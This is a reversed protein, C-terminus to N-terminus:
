ILYNPKTGTNPKFTKCKTAYMSGLSLFVLSLSGISGAGTITMFAYCCVIGSMIASIEKLVPYNPNRKNYKMSNSILSAFLLLYIGLGILGSGYFFNTVDGHIMRNRGFYKPGFYQQSNFLESGILKHVITGDRFEDFAYFIEKYRGEDEYNLMVDERAELRQLLTNEFFPFLILIVLSFFILVKLATTKRYNLLYYVIFGFVLGFISARKMGLIVFIFFCIFFLTYIRKEFKSILGKVLNMLPFLLLIISLNNTIGVGAGGTYFSDELYASVGFNTLQGIILNILIIVGAIVFSRLMLILDFVDRILYYALPYLLLASFWKLYTNYTDSYSSSFLGILALYVLFALIIRNTSNNKIIRFTFLFHISVLFLGRLLGLHFGGDGIEKFYYVTVDALANLVPVILLLNFLLRNKKMEILNKFSLM